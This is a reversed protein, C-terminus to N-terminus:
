VLRQHIPSPLGPLQRLLHVPMSLKLFRTSHIQVSSYKSVPLSTLRAKMSPDRSIRVQSLPDIAAEPGDREHKYATSAMAAYSPTLAETIARSNDRLERDNKSSSHSVGLMSCLNHDAEPSNSMHRHQPTSFSRFNSSRLDFKPTFTSSFAGDNNIDDVTTGPSSVIPPTDQPPPALADNNPLAKTLAVQPVVEPM